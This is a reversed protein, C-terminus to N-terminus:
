VDWLGAIVNRAGASLFAWAFGVPGEGEYTRAGAGRCASVTVLEANLRIPLIDRAFLKCTEPTGSLIVASDLPSEPNALAHASFHIFAFRGPQAKAYADPRAASGRLIDPQSVRMASAISDMEQRAFPLPPFQSLAPAPDGILLLRRAAQPARTRSGTALYNLSPALAITAREIWYRGAGGDPLTEFNLSNLEGDPVLIFRAPGSAADVAPALLADYLKRGTDRAATLPDRQALIVARYSEILPRLAAEAPLPVWRIRDATVVWLYSQKEGIWYELLEANAERAVRRYDAATRSEISQLQGSRAALVRSRSSEAVELAQLPRNNAMLFGVYAKYFHILSALYSFKYEDKLLNASRRDIAAVTSRFESDANHPRKTKLYLDALGAQTDLLVTPDEAPERLAQAFLKEADAFRRRAAAIRAANYISYVESGTEPLKRKLALAEDNEKEAADWHGLEIETQALNSLWRATWPSGLGAPLGRTIALARRFAAAAASYDATEM